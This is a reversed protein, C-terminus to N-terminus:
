EDSGNGGFVMMRNNDADYAGRVGYRGPPMGGTTFLQTWQPTGGLGNANSLVWTEQYTADGIGTGNHGGFMIMSNSAADYVAAHAVRGNPISGSPSLQIWTPTGGLGNANTLVWVDNRTPECGGACGGFIIMRNNIEDYVASHGSRPPPTNSPNLNIWTPTGGLGNANTLVWTDNLTSGFSTSMGGFIIMRNNLPDSVATTGHFGRAAPPGGTPILETWTPATQATVTTASGILLVTVLLFLSFTLLVNMLSKDKM